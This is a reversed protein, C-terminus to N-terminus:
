GLWGAGAGAPGGGADLREACAIYPTCGLVPEM